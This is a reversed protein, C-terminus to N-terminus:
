QIRKSEPRLLQRRVAAGVILLGSWLALTGPEPVAALDNTPSVPPPIEFAALAGQYIRLREIRGSSAENRGSLDDDELFRALQSTASFVAAASSDFFTLQQSGNVFVTFRSSAADRTLTLQFNTNQPIDATGLVTPAFFTPRYNIYLGSHTTGNKFDIVKRYGDTRSLRFDMVISYNDGFSTSGITFGNSLALGQNM